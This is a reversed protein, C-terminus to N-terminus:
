YYFKRVKNQKPKKKKHTQSHSLSVNTHRSRNVTTTYTNIANLPQVAVRTVESPFELLEAKFRVSVLVRGDNGDKGVEDGFNRLYRTVRREVDRHSPARSRLYETVTSSQGFQLQLLSM